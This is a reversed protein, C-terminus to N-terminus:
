DEYAKGKYENLFYKIKKKKFLFKWIKKFM